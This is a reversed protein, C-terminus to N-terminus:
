RRPPQRHVTGFGDNNKRRQRQMEKYAKIAEAAPTDDAGAPHHFITIEDWDRAKDRDTDKARHRELRPLIPQNEDTSKQRALKALAAGFENHPAREEPTSGFATVSLHCLTCAVVRQIREQHDTLGGPESPNTGALIEVWNPIGDGDVDIRPAERELQDETAQLSPTAEMERLREQISREPGLEAIKKGYPTLDAQGAAGHCDTCRINEELLTFKLDEFHIPKGTVPQTVLLAAGTALVTFASKTM